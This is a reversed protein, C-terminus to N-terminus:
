YTIHQTKFQLNGPDEILYQIVLFTSEQRELEFGQIGITERFMKTTSKEHPKELIEHYTETELKAQKLQTKETANKTVSKNNTISISFRM